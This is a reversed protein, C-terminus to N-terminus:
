PTSHTAAGSSGNFNTSGAYTATLPHTGKKFNKNMTAVGNVLTASGLLTGNEYFSVTGTATGSGPAVAAVVARIQVTQNNQSPNPTTTLTLSTDAKTVTLTGSAFTISYNASSVGSPTVSYAGPASTATASTAFAPTGDLSAMSDGNVFGAGTASFAPLPAGYVKTAANATVTLPASTVTLTRNASSGNYNTADTPTFTVSLTQSGANLVAGAAPSYSFTGAVNATANLQSADLATGYVIAAPSSWNVTVNAKAVNITVSTSASSYNVADAPTFTATLTHSGAGLATGASPSYSFSGPVDATANLQAGGLATGHVIDAPNSWTITSAAKAVNLTVSATSGDYNADSPTFTVSLTHSGANLVTGASRSYSFTGPVNATANLQAAGLATGYVIDAPNSWSITSAAKAVNLTVTSTTGDYNATDSPTFTVSLTRTGAGLVTGAAPSYTFAGPVSATANLQAAGLATGYVIDAPPNWSVVPTAKAVTIWWGLNAGTNYNALDDPTFTVSLFRQGAALVTGAPPNYVFTGPTNATANLQTGAVPTGYVMNGPFPWALQPNAKLVTVFRTAQVVEYNPDDPTFTATLLPEGVPLITGAPPTYTFTGPVNATADLQEAGLPQGYILYAPIGWALQPAKKFITLTYTASVAEYNASGDYRVVSTYVGANVPATPSGNYTYIVPTLWGGELAPINVAHGGHPQGDYTFGLNSLTGLIPTSKRIVFSGTATVPEYNTNGAFQVELAYTGANVPATTSGNYRVTYPYLEVSGIGRVFVTATRAYSTYFVPATSIEITPTAQTITLTADASQGALYNASGAYSARVTHAGASTPPTSSSGNYILTVPALTEGLVGVAAGSGAHPQTDYTFTGGAATVTPTAKDIVFTGTVTAPAYNASGAFQVEISYTGANVPPNTSGNYLVTFPTLAVGDVGRIVPSATHPQGSYVPNVTPLEITPTAKNVVITKWVTRQAWHPDDPTITVSITRPGAGLVTGAPPSYVYTGPMSVANLHASGLPTGYTLPEPEWYVLPTGPLLTVGTQAQAPAFADDGAFEVTIANPYEGIPVEASIPFSVIVSGTADTQMNEFVYEAPSVASRLTVKRGQLPRGSGDTLTALAAFASGFTITQPAQVTLNSEFPICFSGSGSLALNELDSAPLVTDFIMLDDIVGRFANNQGGGSKGGIQLDATSPGTMLAGNLAQTHVLNGNVFTQVIGAEYTLAVHYWSTWELRVGTNVWNFGTTTNFAWRLTGDNWKVVHYQRPNFVLTQYDPLTFPYFVGLPKVWMAVTLGSPGAVASASDLGSLYNYQRDNSWGQRVMGTEFTGNSISGSATLGSISESLDGDFMFWRKLNAPAAPSSICQDTPVVYDLSRTATHGAEDTATVTISHRGRTWTDIPSSMSPGACATETQSADYCAYSPYVIEGYPYITPRPQSFWVNPPTTDRRLPVTVTATGGHSTAECSPTALLFDTTFTHTQSCGYSQEVIESDPDTVSWQLVIDSTYWGNVLTGTIIPTIVPPTTDGDGEQHITVFTSGLRIRGNRVIGAPNDSVLYQVTRPGAGFGEGDMLVIWDNESQASWGSVATAEVEISGSGGAQAFSASTPSATFATAVFVHHQGSPYSSGQAANRADSQFAIATGDASLSPNFVYEGDFPFGGDLVDVRTVTNEVNDRVVLGYQNEGLPGALNTATTVFGVFRGDDSVTTYYSSGNALTGDSSRSIVSTRSAPEAAADYLFVQSIWNMDLPVIDQSISSYTIFRGDDSMDAVQYHIGWASAGGTVARDILTTQQTQRDRLYLHQHGNSGVADLNTASSEFMVYRGDASVRARVSDGDAREMDIGISVLSTATGGADDYVGDGDVDRDHLYIQTPGYQTINPAFTSSSSVFTVYRGDASLTPSYSDADGQTGDTAVSIRVTRSADLDRVFVDWHNNNDGSVLNTSGSAFAVHRGNTSIAPMQSYGDGDGGYESVSVRTTVGTMRDRLFVDDAGNFDDEVFEWERSNFVVYRGDGSISRVGGDSTANAAGGWHTTTVHDMLGRFPTLPPSQAVLVSSAILVCLAAIAIFTPRRM